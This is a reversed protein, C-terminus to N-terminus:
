GNREQSRRLTWTFGDRIGSPSPSVSSFQIWDVDVTFIRLSGLPEMQSPILVGNFVASVFCSTWSPPFKSVSLFSSFHSFNLLVLSPGLQVHDVMASGHQVMLLFCRTSKGLNQRM